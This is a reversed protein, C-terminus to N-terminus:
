GPLEGAAVVGGLLTAVPALHQLREPQVSVPDERMVILDAVKGVELSGRREEEWDAWAAHTTYTMLAEEVSVAEEPAMNQGLYTTREVACWMGFFPNLSEPQAGLSDSSGPAHLGADLLRRLAFAGEARTGLYEPLFDGFSSLFPMTLVPLLGLDRMRGIREPTMCLHGAHELRHRMRGPDDLLSFADLAMDLARDGVVHISAQVGADDLARVMANLEDQELKLHGRSEPQHTYPEYFAGAAGTIGGDIFFKAAGFKLWENGFGTELGYRLFAQVAPLTPCHVTFTIRLPLRGQRHLSQYAHLATTSPFQDGLSTVGYASLRQAMAEIAAETEEATFKAPNLSWWLETLTGNIKGEADRGVHAGTPPVFDDDIGWQELARSNAITIHAGARIAAPHDPVAADMEALTPLRREAVKEGLMFSGQGIVWDGPPTETAREALAGLVGAVDRHPPVHCDAFHALHLATGELHTHADILGPLVTRGQLDHRRVGAPARREVEETTGVAAIDGNRILIAEAITGAADFTRVRGNVLLLTDPTPQSM